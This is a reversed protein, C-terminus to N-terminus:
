ESLVFLLPEEFDGMVMLDTERVENWPHTSSQQLPSRGEPSSGEVTSVKIIRWKYNLVGM